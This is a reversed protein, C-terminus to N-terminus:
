CRHLLYFFHGELHRITVTCQYNLPAVYAGHLAEWEKTRKNAPLGIEDTADFVIYDWAGGAPFGYGESLAFVIFKPDPASSQAVEAEYKQKSLKYAILAPDLTNLLLYVLACLTLGLGLLVLNRAYFCVCILCFCFLVVAVVYGLWTISSSFVNTRANIYAARSVALFLIATVIAAASAPTSRFSKAPVAFGKDVAGHGTM